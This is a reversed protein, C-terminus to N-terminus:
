SRELSVFEGDILRSDINSVQGTRFHAWTFSGLGLM